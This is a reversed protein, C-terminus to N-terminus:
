SYLASMLKYHLQHFTKFVTIDLFQVVNKSGLIWECKDQHFLQAKQRSGPNSCSAWTLGDVRSESVAEPPIM